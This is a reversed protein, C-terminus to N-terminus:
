TVSPSLVPFASLLSAAIRSAFAVPAEDPAIVCARVSPYWPSKEAQHHWGHFGAFPLIAFTPRAM